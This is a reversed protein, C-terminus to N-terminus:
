CHGQNQRTSTQALFTARLLSVDHAGLEGILLYAGIIGLGLVSLKLLLWASETHWVSALVYLCSCVALSRLITAASVSVRLLQFVMWMAALCAAIAVVTTVWAAGLSGLRPILFWYGVISAPLMPATLSFTWNPKGVATLIASAVSIMVIALSAFILLMLLPAAPLFSPGFIFHVIESSAGACLGAFPLLLIVIRMAGRALEGAEQQRGSRLMQTMVTLLPTSFSFAFIGPVLTLNQAAAYIGVDATTGGLLKLAFLDVKDFLRMSIVFFFLPLSYSWFQRVSFSGRPFLSPKIFFRSILLELLSAAVSGLVAGVLSFGLEVFLVILILRLLWHSTSIVARARFDGLGTLITKHSHSLCGFLIEISFLQLYVTLKPSGLLDAIYPALLVVLLTMGCGALLSLRLVFSGVGQWNSAESVLKTASSSYFSTITWCLWSVIAAALTYFGYTEPGLTRTLFAITLLGTPLMLGEALFIRVTGDLTHQLPHPKQSTM